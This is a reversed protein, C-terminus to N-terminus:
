YRYQSVMENLPLATGLLLRLPGVPDCGGEDTRNEMVRERAQSVEPM